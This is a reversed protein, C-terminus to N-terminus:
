IEGGIAGVVYSVGITVGAVILTRLLTRRVHMGGSLAGLVSIATLSALVSFMVLWFEIKLPIFWATALPVAAGVAFALGAGVGAIVVEAKSTLHTIGHEAELAAKLPSRVLLEDAVEAALEEGLGKACYHAILGARDAARDAARTRASALRREELEDAIAGLEAERCAATESWKAGGATLMGAVIAAKGAVLLTAEDAGAAVFGLLIGATSIIGDQASLAWGRWTEVDTLYARLEGDLTRRAM